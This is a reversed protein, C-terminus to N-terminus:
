QARAKSEPKMNYLELFLFAFSLIFNTAMAHSANDNQFGSVVFFYGGGAAIVISLLSLFGFVQVSRISSRLAMVLNVISLVVLLGGLLAHLPAVGAAQELAGRFTEESFNFPPISPPNSMMVTIGLEYEFLLMVLIVIVMIRLSKFQDSM